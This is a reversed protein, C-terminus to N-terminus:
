YLLENKPPPARAGEVTSTDDDLDYKDTTLVEGHKRNSVDIYKIHIIGDDDIVLAGNFKGNGLLSKMKEPRIPEGLRNECNLWFTIKGTVNGDCCDNVTTIFTGNFRGNRNPPLTSM